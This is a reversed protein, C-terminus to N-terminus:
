HLRVDGNQVFGHEVSELLGQAQATDLRLFLSFVTVWLSFFWIRM